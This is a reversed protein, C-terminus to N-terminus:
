HCIGWQAGPQLGDCLCHPIFYSTVLHKFSPGYDQKGRSEAMLYYNGKVQGERKEGEDEDWVRRGLLHKLGSISTISAKLCFGM